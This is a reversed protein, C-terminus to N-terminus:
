AKGTAGKNKRRGQRDRRFYNGALLGALSLVGYAPAYILATSNYHLWVAPLFAAAILLPCWWVLGLRMGAKLGCTLAYLPNMFLLLLVLLGMGADPGALRAGYPLGSYLALAGAAMFLPLTQQPRFKTM